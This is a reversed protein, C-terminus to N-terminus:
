ARAETYDLYACPRRDLPLPSLGYRTVILPGDCSEPEVTSGVDPPAGPLEILRYGEATPAFAVCGELPSAPIQDAMRADAEVVAAGLREIARRFKNGADVYASETEVLRDGLSALGKRLARETARVQSEGVAIQGELRRELDDVTARLAMSDDAALSEEIKELRWGISSALRDLEGRLEDRAESGQSDVIECRSALADLKEVLEVSAHHAAASDEDRLTRLTELKAELREVPAQAAEVRSHLDESLSALRDALDGVASRSAELDNEHENVFRELREDTREALMRAARIDADRIALSEDFRTSLSAAEGRAVSVAQEAASRAGALEETFRASLATLGDALMQEIRAVSAVTEAHAEDLGELKARQEAREADQAGVLLRLEKREDRFESRVLDLSTDLVARVDQTDTELRREVERLASQFSEDQADSSARIAALESQVWELHGAVAADLEERAVLGGFRGALEDVRAGLEGSLGDFRAGVEELSTEIGAVADSAIQAQQRGLESIRRDLDDLMSREALSDLRARIQDLAEGEPRRELEGALASLRGDFSEVLELRSEAAALRDALL